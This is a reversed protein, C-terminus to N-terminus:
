VTVIKTLYNRSKEVFEDLKKNVTDWEISEPTKIDTLSYIKRKKLGVIELLDDIRSSTKTGNELPLILFEKNFLISFSLGHFSNTIVFASNSILSIWQIPSAMNFQKDFPEKKKIDFAIGYVPLGLKKSLKKIIKKHNDNLNFIYALIYMHKKNKLKLKKEWESKSLLFVPDLVVEIKKHLLTSLLKAATKERVSIMDFESLYNRYINEQNKNLVSVGISSAYSCKRSNISVFDWFFKTDNNTLNLNWIQDSGTLYLDYDNETFINPYFSALKLYNKRFRSFKFYRVMDIGDKLLIRIDKVPIGTLRQLKYRNEISPSRYDVIYAQNGNRNLYECLAYAQFIAGYNNANHFTIIAIKM